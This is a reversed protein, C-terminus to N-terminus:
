KSDSRESQNIAHYRVDADEDRSLRELTSYIMTVSASNMKSKQTTTQNIMNLTKAATFRVNPVPDSAMSVIMPLITNEITNEHLCTILYQMSYLATMRFLYNTHLHLREIHPLIYKVTWDQGFKTSIVQLNKAAVKRVAQVDDGLWSICLNVLNQNFFDVGLKDALMPIHQIIASRVRWKSDAALSSISPLMAQCLMDIGIVVNLKELTSIINLRVESTDDRLLHLVIPLLYRVTDDKGLKVAIDNVVNALSSRVQESNDSVLHEICPIIRNIVFEKNMTNSIVAVSAAAVARVEAENDVLLNEYVTCLMDTGSRDGLRNFAEHIRSALHWRVRWSRDNTGNIIMPLLRNAVIDQGVINTAYICSTMAQIRVSDQDDLVLRGLASVISDFYEPQKIESLFIGLNEAASKRVMASEDECLVLFLERFTKKTENSMRDYGLPLLAASTVRSTFWDNKTALRTVLPAFYTELQDSMMKGVISKLSKVVTNRVMHVEVKALLELPDLL